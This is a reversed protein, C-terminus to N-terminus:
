TSERTGDIGFDRRFERCQWSGAAFDMCTTGRIPYIACANVNESTGLHVCSGDKRSAFAREGFHGEQTLAVLDERGLRRWRLLDEEPILIRGEAATRCCVGCTLCDFDQSMTEKGGQM